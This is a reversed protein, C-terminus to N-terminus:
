VLVDKALIELIINDLVDYLWLIYIYIYNCADECTYSIRKDLNWLIRGFIWLSGHQM